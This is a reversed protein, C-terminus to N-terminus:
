RTHSGADLQNGPPGHLWAKLYAFDVPTFHPDALPNSVRASSSSAQNKGQETPSHTSLIM